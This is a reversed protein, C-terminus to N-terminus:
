IAEPDALGVMSTLTAQIVALTHPFGQHRLELVTVHGPAFIIRSEILQIECAHVIRLFRGIVKL